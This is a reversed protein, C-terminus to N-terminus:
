FEFHVAKVKDRCDTSMFGFAFLAEKLTELMEERSVNAPIGFGSMRWTVELDNTPFDGICSGFLLVDVVQGQWYMVFIEPREGFEGGGGLYILAIDRERDVTWKNPFIPNRTTPHKINSFDIRAKDAETIPENVFTM